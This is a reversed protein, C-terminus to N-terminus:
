AKEAKVRAPQYSITLKELIEQLMRDAYTEDLLVRDSVYDTILDFRVENRFTRQVAEKLGWINIDRGGPYFLMFALLSCVKKKDERLRLLVAVVMGLIQFLQVPWVIDARWMKIATIRRESEIIFEVTVKGLPTDFFVNKSVSIEEKLGLTKALVSPNVKQELRQTFFMIPFRRQEPRGKTEMSQKVIESTLVESLISPNTVKYYRQRGEKSSTLIGLKELGQLSQLITPLSRQLNHAIETPTSRHQRLAVNCIELASPRKSLYHRWRGEGMDIWDASQRKVCGYIGLQSNFKM